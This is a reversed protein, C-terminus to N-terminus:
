RTNKRKRRNKKLMSLLLRGALLFGFAQMLAM